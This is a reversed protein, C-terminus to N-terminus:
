ARSHLTVCMTSSYEGSVSTDTMPSCINFLQELFNTTWIFRGKSVHCFINVNSCDESHREFHYRNIRKVKEAEKKTVPESQVEYKLFM